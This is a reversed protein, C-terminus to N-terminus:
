MFYIYSDELKVYQDKISLQVSSLRLKIEDETQSWKVEPYKLGNRLTPLKPREAQGKSTEPMDEEVIEELTTSTPNLNVTEEPSDPNLMKRFLLAVDEVDLNDELDFESDYDEDDEALPTKYEFSEYNSDEWDEGDDFYDAQQAAAVHVIASSDAIPAIKIEDIGEMLEETNIDPASVVISQEESPPM